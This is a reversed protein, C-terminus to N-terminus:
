KGARLKLLLPKARLGCWPPAVGDSRSIRHGGTPVSPHNCRQGDRFLCANCGDVTVLTCDLVDGM